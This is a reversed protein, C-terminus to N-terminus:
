RPWVQGSTSREASGGGSGLAISRITPATPFKWDVGGPAVTGRPTRVISMPTPVKTPRPTIFGIKEAKRVRQLSANLVPAHYVTPPPIPAEGLAAIHAQATEVSLKTNYVAVHSMRGELAYTADFNRGYNGLTLGHTADFLLPLGSRDWTGNNFSAGNLIVEWVGTASVALVVHHWTRRAINSGFVVTSYWPPSGNGLDIHMSTNSGPDIFMESSYGGSAPRTGFLCWAATITASDLWFLYEVSHAGSLPPPNAIIYSNASDARSFLSAEEGMVRGLAPVMASGYTLANSGKLDTTAGGLKWFNVLGATALVADSYASM